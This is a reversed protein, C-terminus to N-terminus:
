DNSSNNTGTNNPKSVCMNNTCNYDLTNPCDNVTQCQFNDKICRVSLYENQPIFKRMIKKANSDTTTTNNINAGSNALFRTMVYNIDSPNYINNLNDTGKSSWFKAIGNIDLYAKFSNTKLEEGANSCDWSSTRYLNCTNNNDKLGNELIYWDSDTPIRWGEPCIGQKPEFESSTSYRMAESWTYLGGYLDCNISNDDLCYKEIIENNSSTASSAIQTGINLNDALWCQNGILATKYYGAQNRITGNYNWPGGDYKVVASGCDTVVNLNFSKQSSKGFQNTATATITSSGLRLLRGEIKKVGSNFYLGFPLPLSSTSIGISSREITNFTSLQCTYDDGLNAITLCNNFNIVPDDVTLNISLDKTATTNYSDTVSIRYNFNGPMLEGGIIKLIYNTNTIKDYCAKLNNGINVGSSQSCSLINFNAESSGLSIIKIASDITTGSSLLGNISNITINNNFRPEYSLNHSINGAIIQPGSNSIYFKLQHTSSSGLSDTLIINITSTGSSGAKQSWVKKQNPYPTNQLVLNNGDGWGLDNDVLQWNITHGENDFAEIYGNFEQGSIGELSYNKIYPSTNVSYGIAGTNGLTGGCNYDLLSSSNDLRYNMGDLATEMVACLRYDSGNTNTIYTIINSNAPLGFNNYNYNTSTSLFVNDVANWCTNLDFRKAPDSCSGLKNIPDVINNIKLENLFINQWSPWVSLAIHSLYTGAGLVPYKNNTNYYNSLKKKILVLKELRDLDRVIKAKKGNCFLNSPCDSDLICNLTNETPLICKNDSCSYGDLCDSDIYCSKTSMSCTGVVDTLNTNFKWNKLIQSFIDVTQDDATQNYSILYINSYLYSEGNNVVINTASVYVTRGDRVAKYGDVILSQPSGSFGQQEYWAQASIHEPNSIVRTGIADSVNSEALVKIQDPFIIGIIFFLIILNATTLFLISINKSKIKM